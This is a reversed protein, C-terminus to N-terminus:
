SQQAEVVARFRVKGSEVRELAANIRSLPYTEIIPTVKGQAVLDLAEVLDARNNHTSGKISCQHFLLKTLDEIVLPGDTVGMTVLCGEPRLGSLVKSAQAASSTTSLVIDAGGADALAKGPDGDTVVAEMAGLEKAFRTKEATSTLVITEFGLAAAYQVAMHGLGGIGLVAVRAGPKPNANRLGSMVTFGACFVPAAAEWPIGDPLLTCGSEYALMLESHGGGMTMWSEYSPCYTPRRRQCWVCIGCGQQNWSVGVRDGIHLATVGAGIEVIEGAPEHGPVIPLQVPWQGRHALVDSWCMGSAHVRIVVQGPGPKPEDVDKIEWPTNAKTLVAARM